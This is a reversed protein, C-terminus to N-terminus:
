GNHGTGIRIASLRRRVREAAVDRGHDVQLQAGPEHGLRVAPRSPAGDDFM